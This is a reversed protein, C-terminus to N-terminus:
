STGAMTVDEGEANEGMVVDEREPVMERAVEEAAARVAAIRQPCRAWLGTEELECGGERNIAMTEHGGPCPGHSASQRADCRYIRMTTCQCLTYNTYETRCM